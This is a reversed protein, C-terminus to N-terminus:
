KEEESALVNRLEELAEVVAKSGGKEYARWLRRWLSLLEDSRAKGAIVKEVIENPAM